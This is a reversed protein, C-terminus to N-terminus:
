SIKAGVEKAISAVITPPGAILNTSTDSAAQWCIRCSFQGTSVGNMKFQWFYAETVPKYIVPQRCHEVDLGGYTITGGYVNQEREPLKESEPRVLAVDTTQLQAGLVKKPI